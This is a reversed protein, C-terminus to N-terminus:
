ANTGLLYERLSDLSVRYNRGARIASVGGSDIWFQITRQSVREIKAAHATSVFQGERRKNQTPLVARDVSLAFRPSKAQAAARQVVTLRTRHTPM